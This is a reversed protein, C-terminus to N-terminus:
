GTTMPKPSYIPACGLCNSKVMYEALWLQKCMELRDVKKYLGLQRYHDICREFLEDGAVGHLSGSKDFINPEKGLLCLTINMFALKRMEECPSDMNEIDEVIYEPKM